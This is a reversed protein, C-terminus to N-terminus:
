WDRKRTHTHTHTNWLPSVASWMAALAPCDFTTRYRIWFPARTSAVALTSWTHCKVESLFGGELYFVYWVWETDAVAITHTHTNKHKNSVTCAHTHAQIYSLTTTDKCTDLQQTILTCFREEWKWNSPKPKRDNYSFLKQPPSVAMVCHYFDTIKDYLYVIIQIWKLAVFM